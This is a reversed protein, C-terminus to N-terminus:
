LPVKKRNWWPLHTQHHLCYNRRFGRYVDRLICPTKDWLVGGQLFSIGFYHQADIRVYHLDPSFFNVTTQLRIHCVQSCILRHVPVNFCDVTQTNILYTSIFLGNSM